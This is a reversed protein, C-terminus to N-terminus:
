VISEWLVELVSDFGEKVLEIHKIGAFVGSGVIKEMKKEASHRLYFSGTPSFMM